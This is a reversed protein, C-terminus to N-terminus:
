CKHGIVVMSLAEVKRESRRLKPDISYRHLFSPFESARIFSSDATVNASTCSQSRIFNELHTNHLNGGHRIRRAPLVVLFFFLFTRYRPQLDFIYQKAGHEKVTAKLNILLSGHIFTTASCVATKTSVTNEPCITLRSCAITTSSGVHSSCKCSMEQANGSIEYV